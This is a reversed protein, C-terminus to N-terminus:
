NSLMGTSTKACPVIEEPELRSADPEPMESIVPLDLGTVVMASSIVLDLIPPSSAQMSESTSPESSSAVQLMLCVEIRYDDLGDVPPLPSTAKHDPIPTSSSAKVVKV